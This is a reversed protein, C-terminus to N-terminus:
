CNKNPRKVLKTIISPIDANKQLRGINEHWIPGDNQPAQDLLIIM